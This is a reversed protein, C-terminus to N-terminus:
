PLALILFGLVPRNPDGSIARNRHSTMESIFLSPQFRAVAACVINKTPRENPTQILSAVNM